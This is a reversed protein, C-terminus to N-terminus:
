RHYPEGKKLTYVRYVQELLVVLALEHQLTFKSLSLLLDASERFTESHGDSAGIILSVSKISGDMEWGDVKEKFSETDLLDGREDLIICFSGDSATLFRAETEERTNGPRIYVIDCNTYRRLRKEYEAIGDRAYKLAPKGAAIIRWKM